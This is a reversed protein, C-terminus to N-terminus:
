IEAIPESPQGADELYTEAAAEIEQQSATQVTVVQQEGGSEVPEGMLSRYADGLDQLGREIDSFREELKQPPPLRSEVCAIRETLRTIQDERADATGCEALDLKWRAEKLQQRLKRVQAKLTRIEEQATDRKAM